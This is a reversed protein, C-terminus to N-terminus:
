KNLYLGIIRNGDNNDAKKEWASITNLIKRVVTRDETIPKTATFFDRFVFNQNAFFLLIYIKYFIVFDQHSIQLYLRVM